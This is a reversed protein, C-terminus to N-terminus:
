GLRSIRCQFSYLQIASSYWCLYTQIQKHTNPERTAPDCGSFNDLVETGGPQQLDHCYCVAIATIRFLDSLQGLTQGLM